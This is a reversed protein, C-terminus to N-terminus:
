FHGISYHECFLGMNKQDYFLGVQSFSLEKSIFTFQVVFLLGYPVDITANVHYSQNKIVKFM